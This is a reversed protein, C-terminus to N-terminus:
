KIDYKWKIKQQLLHLGPSHLEQSKTKYWKWFTSLYHRLIIFNYQLLTWHNILNSRILRDEKKHLKTNKVIRSVKNCHLINYHNKRMIIPNDKFRIIINKNM